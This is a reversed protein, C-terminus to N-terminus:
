LANRAEASDEVHYFVRLVEALKKLEEADPQSQWDEGKLYIHAMPGNFAAVVNAYDSFDTQPDLNKRAGAPANIFLETIEKPALVRYSLISKKKQLAKLADGLEWIHLNNNAKEAKQAGAAHDPSNPDLFDLKLKCSM